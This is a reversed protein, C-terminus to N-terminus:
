RPGTRVPWVRGTTIVKGAVSGSDGNNLNVFHANDPSVEEATSSWYGLDTAVGTISAGAGDGYCATGTDNTLSPTFCQLTVARVVMAYWEPQRPLQWDGPSSGDTLGCDGDKLGAATRNAAAWDGTGFCDAQKLWILGTVTDTVTGNGCDVYRNVNDFCPPDPSTGDQGDVGPIGQPGQIDWHAPTEAMTCSGSVGVIRVLRSGNAICAHVVNSDDNGAHASAMTPIAMIFALATAVTSLKM